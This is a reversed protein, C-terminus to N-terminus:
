ILEVAEYVTDALSAQYDELSHHVSTEVTAVQQDLDITVEAVGSMSKFHETVHKVCNQCSLNNLKVTQM